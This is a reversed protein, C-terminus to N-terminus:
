GILNAHDRVQACEAISLAVGIAGKLCPITTAGAANKAITLIQVLMALSQTTQPGTIVTSDESTPNPRRCLRLCFLKAGSLQAPM